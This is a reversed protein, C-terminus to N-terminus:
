ISRWNMSSATVWEAVALKRSIYEGIEWYLEVLTANVTQYARRRASEILAIVPGFDNRKHLTM